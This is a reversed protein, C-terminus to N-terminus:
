PHCYHRPAPVARSARWGSGASWHAKLVLVCRRGPMQFPPSCAALLPLLSPPRASHPGRGMRNRRNHARRTRAYTDNSTRTLFPEYDQRFRRSAADGWGNHQGDLAGRRKVRCACAGYWAECHACHLSTTISSPYLSFIRDCTNFPHPRHQDTQLTLSPAGTYGSDMRPHARRHLRSGHRRPVLRGGPGRGHDM